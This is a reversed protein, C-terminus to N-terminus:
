WSFLGLGGSADLGFHAIVGPVRSNRAWAVLGFVLGLIGIKVILFGGQYGHTIGFLAAQAFIAALPSRLWAAFQLQLYGRYTLEESVAAALSVIVWLVPQTAAAGVVSKVVSTDGPGFGRAILASMLTLFLFLAIGAAIDTLGRLGTMPGQFALDRLGVGHRRVGIWVYYLLAAEAIVLGPLLAGSNATAAGPRASHLTLLGAAAVGLLILCLIATHRASAIAEQRVKVIM